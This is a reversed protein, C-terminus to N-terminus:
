TGAVATSQVYESSAAAQIKRVTEEGADAAIESIRSLALDAGVGNDRGQSGLIRFTESMARHAARLAQNAYIYHSAGTEYFVSPGVNEYKTPALFVPTRRCWSECFGTLDELGGAAVCQVFVGAAGADVYKGCRQLAEGVGLDAVLAETRAVVVGGLPEIGERAAAIKAQQEGVDVLTRSYGAYLSCRRSTGTDELCVATAGARALARAAYFTRVADGYGSEIDVVIPVSSIRGILTVLSVVHSVDLLGVDPLALVASASFSSVWLFDFEAKDALVASVGDHVGVGLQAGREM